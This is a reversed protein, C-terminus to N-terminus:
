LHSKGETLQKIAPDTEHPLDEHMVRRSSPSDINWLILAVRRRTTQDSHDLLNALAPVAPDGIESLAKGVHDTELRMATGFTFLSPRFPSGPLVQMLSPVTNSAKLQGALRVANRWVRDFTAKKILDPLKGVIYERAVPDESATRLIEQAAHDTTSANNLQTFLTHIDPTRQAAAPLSLSACMLVFAMCYEKRM